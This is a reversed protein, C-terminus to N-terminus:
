RGGCSKEVKVRHIGSPYKALYGDRAEICGPKDNMKELVGVRRAEADERLSADPALAIADRLAADAGAADHLTDERIRALQLAALGARPDDRHKSRLADFAEAAQAPHDSLRAADALEFLQKPTARQIARAYGAVGFVDFAGSPDRDAIASFRALSDDVLPRVASADRATAVTEGSDAITETPSPAGGSTWSEGAILSSPAAQAREVRVSGEIVTVRVDAGDTYEVHFRTGTDVVSVGRAVVVFARAADHKVDFDARGAVLEVRTETASTERVLLRSSPGITVRSGDALVLTSGTADSALETVSARTAVSVPARRALRWTVFCALVIAAAALAPTWALARARRGRSIASWQRALRADDIRPRAFKSLRENM